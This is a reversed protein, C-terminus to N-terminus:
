RVAPVVERTLVELHRDEDYVPNLLIHDAGAARVRCLVAICEEVTGGLGMRDAMEPDGYYRGFWERLRGVARAKTAEVAIYMRKSLSFSAQDRGARQLMRRVSAAQQEFDELTSSGAGMWGDGMEVARQLAADARAGFWIPPHPKQLPKPEMGAEDLRAFQGHYTVRDETWLRKMVRIAEVYRATRRESTLGFAPYIRRNEGIGVGVILRGGSLVDLTSLSKATHMPNRLPLVLVSVGLRVTNTVGAAFTLLTVSELVPFPSLTRDQVWLSHYGLAEAKQAYTRLAGPDIQTGQFIQPIAVGFTLPRPQEM